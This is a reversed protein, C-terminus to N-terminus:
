IRGLSCVDALSVTLVLALSWARRAKLHLLLVTMAAFAALAARDLLAGLWAANAALLAPSWDQAGARAVLADVAARGSSAGVRVALVSLGAALLVALAALAFGSAPPPASDADPLPRSCGSLGLWALGALAAVCLMGAVREGPPGLPGPWAALLLSAGLLARLVWACRGRSGALAVVALLTPAIGLYPLRVPQAGAPLWAARALSRGAPPPPEGLVPAAPAEDYLGPVALAIPERASQVPAHVARLRPVGPEPLVNALVLLLALLPGAAAAPGRPIRGAATM